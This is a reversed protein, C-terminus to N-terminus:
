LAAQIAPQEAPAPRGAQVSDWIYPVAYPDGTLRRCAEEWDARNRELFGAVWARRRLGAPSGEPAYRRWTEENIARRRANVKRRVDEDFSLAAQLGRSLDLKTTESILTRPLESSSLLRRLLEPHQRYHLYIELYASSAFTGSGVFNFLEDAHVREHPALQAVETCHRFTSIRPSIWIPPRCHAQGTVECIGGMRNDADPDDFGFNKIIVDAQLTMSELEGQNV